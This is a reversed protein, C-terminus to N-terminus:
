NYEPGNPLDNRMYNVLLLIKLMETIDIEVSDTVGDSGFTLPMTALM